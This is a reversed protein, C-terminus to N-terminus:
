GSLFCKAGRPLLQKNTKQKNTKKKKTKQKKKTQKNTQKKTKKTQKKKTQKNKTKKYLFASLFDCFNDGKNCIALSRGLTNLRRLFCYQEVAPHLDYFTETGPRTAKLLLFSSVLSDGYGHLMVKGAGFVSYVLLSMVFAMYSVLVIQLLLVM